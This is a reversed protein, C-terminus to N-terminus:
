DLRGGFRLFLRRAHLLNLWQRIASAALLLLGTTTTLEAAPVPLFPAPL